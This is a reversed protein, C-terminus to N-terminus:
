SRSLLLDWRRNIADLFYFVPLMANHHFRLVLFRTYKEATIGAQGGGEVGGVPGLVTTGEYQRAMGLSISIVDEDLNAPLLGSAGLGEQAIKM